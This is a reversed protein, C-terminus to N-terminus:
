GLSVPLAFPTYMKIARGKKNTVFLGTNWNKDLQILGKNYPDLFLKFFRLAVPTGRSAAGLFLILL